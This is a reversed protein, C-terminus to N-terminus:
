SEGRRYRHELTHINKSHKLSRSYIYSHNESSSCLTRGTKSTQIKIVRASTKLVDGFIVPERLKWQKCTWEYENSLHVLNLMSPMEPRLLCSAIPQWAAVILYDMPVSGLLKKSSITKCFREVHDQRVVFTSTNDKEKKTLLDQVNWIKAYFSKMSRKEESELCFRLPIYSKTDSQFNLNMFTDKNKFCLTALINNSKKTATYVLRVREIQDRCLVIEDKAIKIQDNLIPSFLARLPNKIWRKDHGVVSLSHLADRIWIKDQAIREFWEKESIKDNTYDLTRVDDCSKISEQNNEM